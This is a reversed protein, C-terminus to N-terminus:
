PWADVWSGDPQGYQMAVPYAGKNPVQPLATRRAELKDPQWFELLVADLEERVPSQESVEALNVMEEPNEDLNFLVPEGEVFRCYKWAGKRVMAGEHGDRWAIESFVCREDRMRSPDELLSTLSEGACHDPIGIGALDCITPFCDVLSILSRCQKGQSLGPGRVIFPVRASEEYFMQKHWLDHAGAMEGHDSCYIVYTDEAYGLHDISELLHGICEDMYSVNGTYGALTRDLDDQSAGYGLYHEWHMRDVAHRDQMEERSVPRLRGRAWERYFEFWRAPPQYPFHPRPYHVGLLFPRERERERHIQLFKVAEHTIINETLQFEPIGSPGALKFGGGIPHNGGGGPGQLAVDAGRYPDSQHGNGRIDGYPREQYGRFQDDGTFHAKGVLCTKWGNESLLRAFSPLDERPVDGNKYVCTDRSYLGSILCYRAPVCIPNPTYAHSFNVSESALRNLAPTKVAEHGEYGTFRPNHQDSLIFIINSSRM